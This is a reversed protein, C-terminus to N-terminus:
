DCFVRRREGMPSQPHGACLSNDVGTFVVLTKSLNTCVEIFSPEYVTATAQYCWTCTYASNLM